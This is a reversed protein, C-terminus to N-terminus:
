GCCGRFEVCLRLVMVHWVVRNQDPMCWGVRWGDILSWIEVAASVCIFKSEIAPLRPHEGYVSVM